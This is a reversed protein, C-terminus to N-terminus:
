YMTFPSLFLIEGKWPLRSLEPNAATPFAPPLVRGDRFGDAPPAKSVLTLHLSDGSVVSVIDKAYCNLEGVQQHITVNLQM